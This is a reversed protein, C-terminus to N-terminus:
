ANTTESFLHRGVVRGREHVSWLRPAARCRVEPLRDAPLWMWLQYAVAAATVLLLAALGQAAALARAADAHPPPPPSPKTLPPPASTAVDGGGGGGGISLPARHRM